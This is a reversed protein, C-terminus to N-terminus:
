ALTDDFRQLPNNSNNLNNNITTNSNKSNNSNKCVELMQQQMKM